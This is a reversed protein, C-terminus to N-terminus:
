STSAPADSTEGTEFLNFLKLTLFLGTSPSSLHSLLKGPQQKLLSLNSGLVGQFRVFAQLELELPVSVKQVGQTNYM